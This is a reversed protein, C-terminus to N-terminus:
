FKKAYLQKYNYLLLGIWAFCHVSNILTGFFWFHLALALTLSLAVATMPTTPRRYRWITLFILTIIPTIGIIGLGSLLLIYMIYVTQDTPVSININQLYPGLNGLGVGFLITRPQNLWAKLALNAADLRENSSAEVFGAPTFSESPPTTPTNKGTPTELSPTSNTKQPLNIIGLSLQDIMSVATNHAIHPTNPFRLVASGFMLLFGILTGFAILAISSKSIKPSKKVFLGTLIYIILAGVIAMFAGRSFTLAIALSTSFLSVQALRSKVFLALFFAPLLSSAFFQPEAAFLNIRPFGFVSASCGRCLTGFATPELSATALQGIALAGFIIGSWLGVNTFLQKQATTFQRYTLGAALGVVLLAVLSGAYLLSRLPSAAFILGIFITIFLLGVGILLWRSTLLTKRQEWLLPLSLTIFVILLVQYLGIRLASFDFLPMSISPHLACAGGFLVAALLWFRTRSIIAMCRTYRM